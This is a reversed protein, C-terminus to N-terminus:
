FHCLWTEKKWASLQSVVVVAMGFLYKSTPLLLCIKMTGDKQIAYTKCQAWGIPQEDGQMFYGIDLIANGHTLDFTCLYM